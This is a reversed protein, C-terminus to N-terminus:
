KKKKAQSQNKLLSIIEEKDALQRQLQTIQTKLLENEKRLSELSSSTEEPQFWPEGSKAKEVFENIKDFFDNINSNKDSSMRAAGPPFNGIGRKLMERFFIHVMDDLKSKQQKERQNNM